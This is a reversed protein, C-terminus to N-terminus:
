FCCLSTKDPFSLFDWLHKYRNEGVNISVDEWSIWNFDVKQINLKGAEIKSFDLIDNIIGLLSEAANNTKSIYNLQEKNLGTKLALGTMGIIANMQTRIRAQGRPMQDNPMRGCRRAPHSRPQLAPNEHDVRAPILIFLRYHFYAIANVLAESVDIFFINFIM